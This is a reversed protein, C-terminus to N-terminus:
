SCVIAISLHKSTFLNCFCIVVLEFYLVGLCICVILMMEHIDNNIHIEFVKAASVEVTTDVTCRCLLSQYAPTEIRPCGDADRRVPNGTHIRTQIVM